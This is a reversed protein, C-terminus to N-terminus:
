VLLTQNIAADCFIIAHHQEIARGSKFIRQRGHRSREIAVLRNVERLELESGVFRRWSFFCIIRLVKQVARIAIRAKAPATRASSNGDCGIVMMTGNEAPPGDSAIARM